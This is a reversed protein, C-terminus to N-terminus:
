AANDLATLENHDFPTAGSLAHPATDFQVWVPLMSDSDVRQVTGVQDHYASAPANVKVREGSEFVRSM